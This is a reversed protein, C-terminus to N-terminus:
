SGFRSLVTRITKLFIQIELAISRNKIYYFDYSLKLKTEKLNSPVYDQNIQAWGSLGPKVLTRMMFYPLDRCLDDAIHKFEPRPGILSLDGKLVSIIQPLEDIRTPKIVSGVKSVPNDQSKAGFKVGADDHLRNRIKPIKIIKGLMGLRPNQIFFKGPGELMMFFKVIPFIIFTPLLIFCFLLDFTKKFFIYGPKSSKQIYTLFWLEDIQGLPIRKMVQEFFDKLEVYKSGYYLSEYLYEKILKIKSHDTDIVILNDDDKPINTFEKQVDNVFMKELDVSKALRYYKDTNKKFYEVLDSYDEGTGFIYVNQILPRYRVFIYRWASTFIFSFSFFLFLNFRPNISLRSFFFYFLLVAFVFVISHVMLIRVLNVKYDQAVRDYLGIIYNGVLLAFIVVAFPWIHTEYSLNRIFIMLYFSSYFFFIDGLFQMIQIPKSKKM